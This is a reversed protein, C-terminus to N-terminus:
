KAPVATSWLCICLISLTKRPRLPCYRLCRPERRMQLSRQFSNLFDREDPELDGVFFTLKGWCMVKGASKCEMSVGLIGLGHGGFFLLVAEKADGQLVAFLGSDERFQVNPRFRVRSVAQM